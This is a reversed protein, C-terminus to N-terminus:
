SLGSTLSMIRSCAVVASGSARVASMSSMWSARPALVQGRDREELAGLDGDDALVHGAGLVREVGRELEAVARERVLQDTLLGVTGDGAVSPPRPRGARGYPVDDVLCSGMVEVVVPAGMPTAGGPGVVGAVGAAFLLRDPPVEAAVQQHPEQQDERRDEDQDGGDEDEHARRAVRDGGRQAPPQRVVLQLLPDVLGAVVPRDEHLVELVQAVDEAPVEAGRDGVVARDGLDDQRVPGRSELEREVRQEDREQDADRQAADGGGAAVLADVRRRRM